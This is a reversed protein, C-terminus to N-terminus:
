KKSEQTDVWENFRRDVELWFRDGDSVSLHMSSEVEQMYHHIMHEQYRYPVIEPRGDAIWNDTFECTGPECSCVKEIIKGTEIDYYVDYRMTHEAEM